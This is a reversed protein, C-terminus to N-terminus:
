MVDSNFHKETKKIRTFEGRVIQETQIFSFNM